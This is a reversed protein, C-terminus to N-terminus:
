YEIGNIPPGNDSKIVRPIGFTAFSEHLVPLVSHAATSTIQKVTPYGSYEDILVLLQIGSSSGYFDISINEWPSRPMKSM